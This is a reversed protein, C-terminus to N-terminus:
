GAPAAGPAPPGPRDGTDSGEALPETAARVQDRFWDAAGPADAPHDQGAPEYDDALDRILFALSNGCGVCVVRPEDTLALRGDRAACPSESSAAWPCGVHGPHSDYRGYGAIGRAM